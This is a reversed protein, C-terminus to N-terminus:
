MAGQPRNRFAAHTKRCSSVAYCTFFVGQLSKAFFVEACDKCSVVDGLRSRNIKPVNM